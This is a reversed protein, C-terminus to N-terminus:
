QGVFQVIKVTSCQTTQQTPQTAGEPDIKESFNWTASVDHQSSFHTNADDYNTGPLNHPPSMLVTDISGM